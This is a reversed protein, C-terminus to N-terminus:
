ESMSRLGADAIHSPRRGSPNVGLKQYDALPKGHRGINRLNGPEHKEASELRLGKNQFIIYDGTRPSSCPATRTLRADTM